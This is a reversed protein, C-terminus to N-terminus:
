PIEHQSHIQAHSYISQLFIKVLLASPSRKLHRDETFTHRYSITNRLGIEHSQRNIRIILPRYTHFTHCHTKHNTLQRMHFTNDIYIYQFHPQEDPPRYIHIARYLGSQQQINLQQHIPHNSSIQKTSIPSTQHHHLPFVAKTLLIKHIKHHIATSKPKTRVKKAPKQKTTSSTVPRNLLM